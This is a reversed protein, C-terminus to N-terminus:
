SANDNEKTPLSIFKVVQTIAAKVPKPTDVEEKRTNLWTAMDDSTIPVIDIDPVKINELEIELEKIKGGQKGLQDMLNENRELVEEVIIKDNEEATIMQEKEPLVVKVDRHEWTQFMGDEDYGVFAPSDYLRSIGVVTIRKGLSFTQAKDIMEVVMGSKMVDDLDM